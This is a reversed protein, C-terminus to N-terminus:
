GDAHRRHSDQGPDPTEHGATECTSPPRTPGFLEPTPVSAFHAWAVQSM